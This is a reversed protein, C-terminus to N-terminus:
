KIPCREYSYEMEPLGPFLRVIKNDDVVRVAFEVDSLMIDTACAAVMYIMEGDERTAKIRCSALKGRIRGNQVIFGSAHLDSEKIFSVTKGRKVFVNSCESANSAWVGTLDFAHVSTGFLVPASCIPIIFRFMNSCCM